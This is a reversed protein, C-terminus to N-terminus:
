KEKVSEESREPVRDMEGESGGYAMQEGVKIM